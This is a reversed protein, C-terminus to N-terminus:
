MDWLIGFILAIYGLAAPAIALKRLLTGFALVYGASGFGALFAVVRFMGQLAGLTGTGYWGAENMFTTTILLPLIYAAAVWWASIEAKPLSSRETQIPPEFPNLSM